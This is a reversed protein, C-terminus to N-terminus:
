FTVNLGVSYVSPIPYTGNDIGSDLTSGSNVEPSYGTYKKWTVLNTGRLFVRATKMHAKQTLKAPLTYGLNVSRIRLFSGDQIFRSSTLWNYGGSSARPETNSTGDGKWRGYVHAEFNYLDPRITEKNNYIKNGQVGQIDIALSLAKWTVEGNVGFFFKPIYSGLSTRDDGNIKGDGNTDAFKLDGIGADSRHPYSDLDAQNQFVGIVNYGYYSGIPTGVYTRTSGSSNQIYDGPGQNGSVRLMENHVTTGNVGARYKFDGAEGNYNVNFELGRNLVEGSNFTIVAGDGNGLYGPVALDILIDKTNKQYFDVEATIADNLFGFEAGVDIQYTNEWKLNPNGAVGYSAGPYLTESVGFVASQGNLVRSYQRDYPIKDNGVIGWSGRLKFNSIFTADKMFSENIVNWGVAVAPFNSFRNAASFKSSGDRRFTFTLLYRNDYSYNARALYSVISYNIDFNPTNSVSTALINNANFYWFDESNRIINQGSLSLSESKGEQSTYGVVAGVRHKGFDKNYNVTNEWVWLLRESWSKNLDNIPNAQLPSVFFVPTFSRNKNYAADLGLSSKFTFGKLFDAEIYFNGVGSIGNGFSNTYEIDALVNGVGPVPSYGGGALYPTISPQSRYANFVAGGFANEQKTPTFTLNNGLRLFKALHYTNNMKITMREFSSKPIIGQQNYYGAGFYYQVKPSSGSISVQYNQIAADRFIQDQWNTNAVADVNNYTGPAIENVVQAFQKGTLMDIRQTLHQISYDTTFQITPAEQGVAGRKTTVIIVGNAGRSGYIATASADKLVEISAIDAPNLFDMNSLFVGDVVFLPDPNGTTAVGRIRVSSGAGPAGSNSIVQVGAIKGQLAQTASSFPLKVLEESKVSAVSGTLDSKRVTGYGIVVVEDLTAADSELGVDVTTRGGVDVTQTKYGIFSFILANEGEALEVKYKGGADTATGKTTGKVVVNVGPLPSGDDTGTVTGEVTRTQASVSLCLCALVSILLLKHMLIVRNLSM